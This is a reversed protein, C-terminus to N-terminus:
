LCLWCLWKRSEGAAISEIPFMHLSSINASVHFMIQMHDPIRQQHAPGVNPHTYPSALVQHTMLLNIPFGITCIHVDIYVSAHEPYDATGYAVVNLNTHHPSWLTGQAASNGTTPPVDEWQVQLQSTGTVSPIQLPYLHTGALPLIYRHPLSVQTDHLACDHQAQLPTSLPFSNRSRHNTELQPPEMHAM